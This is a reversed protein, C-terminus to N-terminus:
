RKEVTDSRGWSWRWDGDTKWWSVAVLAVTAVILTISWPSWVWLGQKRVMLMVTCLVAVAVFTTVVAWGEWTVPTAGYGFVKPKFWFESM